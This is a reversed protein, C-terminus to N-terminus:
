RTMSPPIDSPNSGWSYNPEPGMEFILTGGNVIDEHSIWTKNHPKGNLTASQIYKNLKSVNNARIIFEGEKYPAELKLIAEEFVPSGIIYINQGPSVPYIGMASLVYWSSLSGMDENGPIGGPGTRYLQDMIQRAKEQTKWPEGAYNYIYAVHHSPQNGHVYQGITGVVGVYKPESIEPSMTFFTDLKSIFQENSGFLDILGNIDHQVSWIYQWANSETYYRNPRRGVLLPDFCGYYSHNGDRIIEAPSAGCEPLWTGDLMKPRMFNTTPDFLNKYNEARQMLIKYDEDKGLEKAMQAICWDDYASELTNPVSETAKDVPVYGLEKYDELGSRGDAPSQPPLPLEMAKKLMANYIFDVDYDRFGKMYADVIIPVLHDGVMGQHFVNRHHQTPLWGYNRTKAVISKIMDNVYEPEVLTMLPHESRYTDWCLFSPFFDYDEAVHIKGDMGFYKGDIDNSIVQALISHYLATYFIQKQDETGGSVQLKKLEKNWSDKTKNRVKEFDWDPIEAQLNKKAGETSVYSIGVKVFITEDQTTRFNVFAGIKSGSEASKYPFVSASSEPTKYNGDWTGYAGFDKSFEAVFYVTAEQAIKYGQITNNNIFELHSKEVPADGIIHGLDLLIHADESKPFTYKHMGARKSVTLEAKINYDKLIVSYYGPSATEEAHDFRSRYGEDPNERSGPLIQLKQSVTPMILIDGKAVMGVGGYHTHSFGMISNDAHQYGAAYTWGQTYTDPSLQVMGFPAGPGPFMHAFFDTGIFPDVYDVPEKQETCASLFIITMIIVLYIPFQRHHRKLLNKINM